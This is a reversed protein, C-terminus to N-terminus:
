LRYARRDLATAFAAASYSGATITASHSQSGVTESLTLVLNSTLYVATNSIYFTDSYPVLPVPTTSYSTM